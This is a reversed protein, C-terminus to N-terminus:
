GHEQALMEAPHLSASWKPENNQQMSTGGELPLLLSKHLSFLKVLLDSRQFRPELKPEELLNIQMRHSRLQEQACTTVSFLLLLFLNHCRTEHFAYVSFSNHCANTTLLM